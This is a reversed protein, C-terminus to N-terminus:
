TEAADDAHHAATEAADDAHHAAREAVDDANRSMADVAEDAHRSMADVAEDAHRSMASAAEDAHRSMVSAAEDAHRNMAGVAEDIYRNVAASAADDANHTVAGTVDDAHRSVAGAVDDAHRAVAGAVDDANHSVAGTVDDAHRAVAGTVDDAHRAVAGAADDAHRTVAGAVDDANHSVAGTVDDAHRSVAGAVDDANHTVAGAVDDAHRSVAGAVDDANHAVAGAVDDVHRAVAGTIDGYLGHCDMGLGIGDFALGILDGKQIDFSCDRIGTVVGLGNGFEPAIVSIGISLGSSIYTHIGKVDAYPSYKGWVFDYATLRGTETVTAWLASTGFTAGAVGLVAATGLGATVCGIAAAAALTLSFTLITQWGSNNMLGALTGGSESWGGDDAFTFLPITMLLISIQAGIIGMFLSVKAATSGIRVIGKQFLVFLLIVVSVALRIWFNFDVAFWLGANILTCFILGISLGLLGLQFHGFLPVKRKGDAIRKYGTSSAFMMLFPAIGGDECKMCSFLLMLALLFVTFPNFVVINLVAAVALGTYIYQIVRGPVAECYRKVQSGFSFYHKVNTKVKGSLIDRIITVIMISLLYYLLATITVSNFYRSFKPIGIVNHTDAVGAQLYVTAKGFVAKKGINFTDNLYCLAYLNWVLAGISVILTVGVRILLNKWNLFGKVFNVIMLKLFGWFSRPFQANRTLNQFSLRSYYEPDEANGGKGGASGGDTKHSDKKGETPDVPCNRDIYARIEDKLAENEKKEVSEVKQDRDLRILEFQKKGVNVLVDADIKTGEQNNICQLVLQTAPDVELRIDRGQEQFLQNVKKLKFKKNPESKEIESELYAYLFDWESDAMLTVRDNKVNQWAVLYFGEVRAFSIAQGDGYSFKKLMAINKSHTWANIFTYIVPNLDVTEGEQILTEHKIADRLLKQLEEGDPKAYLMPANVFGTAHTCGKKKMFYRFVLIYEKLSMERLIAPREKKM